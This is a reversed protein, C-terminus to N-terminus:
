DLAALAVDRQIVDVAQGQRQVDVNLHQQFWFSMRFGLLVSPVTNIEALDTWLQAGSSESLLFGAAGDARPVPSKRYSLSHPGARVPLRKPSPDTGSVQGSGSCLFVM